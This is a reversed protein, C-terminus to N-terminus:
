RGNEVSEVTVRVRSIENGRDALVGFWGNLEVPWVRLLIGETDNPVQVQHIIQLRGGKYWVVRIFPPRDAEAGGSVPSLRLMMGKIPNEPSLWIEGGSGIELGSDGLQGGRVVLKTSIIEQEPLLARSWSLDIPTDEQAPKRLVPPRSSSDGAHQIHPLRWGAWILRNAEHSVRVIFKPKVGLADTSYFQTIENQEPPLTVTKSWLIKSGEGKWESDVILFETVLSADSSEDRRKLVVDGQIRFISKAFGFSGQGETVGIFFQNDSSYCPWMPEDYNLFDPDLNGGFVSIFKLTDDEHKLRKIPSEYHPTLLRYGDLEEFSAHRHALYLLWGPWFSWAKTAVILHFADRKQLLQRLRDIEVVGYTGTTMWLPLGSIRQSPWIHEM